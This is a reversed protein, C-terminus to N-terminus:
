RAIGGHHSCTGRGSSRSYTGDRCLTPGAGNGEYPIFRPNFTSPPIVLVEGVYLPSTTYNEGNAILLADMTIGHKDAIAWWSDGPQVTYTTGARQPPTTPLTWVPRPTSIPAIYQSQPRPTRFSYASSADRSRSPASLAAQTSGDDSGTSGDYILWGVGAAIAGWFVVTFAWTLITERLPTKQRIPTTPPSPTPRTGARVSAFPPQRGRGYQQWHPYCYRKWSAGTERGCITCKM